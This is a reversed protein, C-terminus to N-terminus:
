SLFHWPFPKPSWINEFPSCFKLPCFNNRSQHVFFRVRKTYHVSICLTYFYTHLTDLTNFKTFYPLLYSSKNLLAGQPFLLKKLFFNSLCQILNNIGERISLWSIRQCMKADRGWQSTKVYCTTFGSKNFWYSFLFCSFPTLELGM